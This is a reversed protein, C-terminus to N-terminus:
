GVFTFSSDMPGFIEDYAQQRLHKGDFLLGEQLIGGDTTHAAPRAIFRLGQSECGERLSENIRSILEVERKEELNFEQVQLLFPNPPQIALIFFEQDIAKFESIFEVAKKAISCHRNIKEDFDRYTDGLPPFIRRSASIRYDIEGVSFIINKERSNLILSNLIGQKFVNPKPDALHRLQIGPLYSPKFCHNKDSSWAAALVHSDGVVCGNSSMRTKHVITEYIKKLHIFNSIYFSKWLGSGPDALLSENIKGLQESAKDFRGDMHWCMVALLQIRSGWGMKETDTCRNLESKLARIIFNLDATHMMAWLRRGLDPEYKLIKSVNGSFFFLDNPVYEM